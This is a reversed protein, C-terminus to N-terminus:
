LAEKIGILRAFAPKDDETAGAAEVVLDVLGRDYDADKGSESKLSRALLVLEAVSRRAKLSQVEMGVLRSLAEGDRM